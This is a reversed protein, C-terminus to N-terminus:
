AAHRAHGSGRQRAAARGANTPASAPSAQSMAHECRQRIFDALMALQQADAKKSSGFLTNLGMGRLTSLVMGAVADGQPDQALEPFSRMFNDVTRQRLKERETSLHSLLEADARASLFISWMTLYRAQAYVLKWAAEVAKRARVELPAGPAPWVVLHGHRDDAHVLQTAARLILAKKSEFHHQIAGPTVGAAKAIEFSSANELGREEIVRITAAILQEQMAESREAQTRRRPAPAASKRASRAAGNSTM